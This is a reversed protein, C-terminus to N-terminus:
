EPGAAPEGAPCLGLLEKVWAHSFHLVDRHRKAEEKQKEIEAKPLAADSGDDLARYSRMYDRARRSCKWIVPLDLVGLAEDVRASLPSTSKEGSVGPRQRGLGKKRRSDRQGGPGLSSRKGDGKGFALGTARM